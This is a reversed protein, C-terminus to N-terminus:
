YLFIYSVRPLVDVNYALPRRRKTKRQNFSALETDLMKCFHYAKCMGVAYFQSDSLMTATPYIACWILLALKFINLPKMTYYIKYPQLYLKMARPMIKDFNKLNYLLNNTQLELM